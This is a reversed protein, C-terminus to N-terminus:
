SEPQRRPRVDSPAIHPTRQFTVQGGMFRVTITTETTRYPEQMSQDDWDLADAVPILEGTSGIAIALPGGLPSVGRAFGYAWAAPLNTPMLYDDAVPVPASTALTPDQPRPKVTGDRLSSITEVLLRSGLEALERELDPARVGFPVPFREQALIPGTDLGSDMLHVTTGTEREGRRLTWFVPEPGRGIPLLSPHVNICGFEPLDLIPNPLRWPFCSVVILDPRTAALLQRNARERLNSLTEISDIGQFQVAAAPSSSALFAAVVNLGAAKLADLAIASADCPMGLFVIRM